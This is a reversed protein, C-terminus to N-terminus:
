FRRKVPEALQTQPQKRFNEIEEREEL